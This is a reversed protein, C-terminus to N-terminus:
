APIRALDAGLQLMMDVEDRWTNRLFPAAVLYGHGREILAQCVSAPYLSELQQVALALNPVAKACETSTFSDGRTSWEYDGFNELIDAPVAAVTNVTSM